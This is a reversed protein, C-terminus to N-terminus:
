KEWSEREQQLFAEAQAATAYCGRGSGIFSSLTRKPQPEKLHIIIEIEAGKRLNQSHIEIVGDTQVILAQKFVTVM